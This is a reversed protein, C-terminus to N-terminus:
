SKSVQNNLETVYNFITFNDEEKRRYIRLINDVDETETIEQIRNLAQSYEEIKKQQQKRAIEGDAGTFQILNQLFNQM